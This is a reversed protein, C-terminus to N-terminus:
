VTRIGLSAQAKTTQLGGFVRKRVNLGMHGIHLSSQKTKPKVDWDVAKTMDLWDAFSVM